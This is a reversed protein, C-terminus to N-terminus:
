SLSLTGYAEAVRQAREREKQARNRRKTDADVSNKRKTDADVAVSNQISEM